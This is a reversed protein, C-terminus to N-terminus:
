SHVEQRGLALSVAGIWFLLLPLSAYAAAALASNLLLYGVGSTILALALLVATWGLWHPLLRVERVLVAAVLAMAALLIMKVGDLRDILHLLSGAGDADSSPVVSAALHQGLVCQTLSIVAACLGAFTLAAGLGASGRRRAADGLCLVVVALALAAVGEVLAYQVQAAAQHGSYAALVERGTSSVDVNSPWVALGTVWAAVYAAGAVAPLVLDTRRRVVIEARNM